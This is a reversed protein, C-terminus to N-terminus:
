KDFNIKGEKVMDDIVDRVFREALAEAQKPTLDSNRAQVRKRVERLRQLAQKRRMEEKVKKIKEYDDYSMVAIKPKGRSEVIVENGNRTVWSILSGFKNKAESASITKPTLM